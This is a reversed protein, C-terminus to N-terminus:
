STTSFKVPTGGITVKVTFALLPELSVVLREKERQIVTGNGEIHTGVKLWKQLNKILEKMSWEGWNDDVRVLNPKVQPIKKLQMMVFGRLM